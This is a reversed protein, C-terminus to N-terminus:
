GRTERTPRQKANTRTLKATTRGSSGSTLLRQRERDLPSNTALLPDDAYRLLDARGGPTNQSAEREAANLEREDAFPEREDAQREREAESEQAEHEAAPIRGPTGCPPYTLYTV